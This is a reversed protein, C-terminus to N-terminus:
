CCDTCSAKLIKISVKYTAFDTGKNSVQPVNLKLLGDPDKNEFKCFM